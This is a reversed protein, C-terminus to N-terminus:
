QVETDCLKADRVDHVNYDGGKKKQNDVIVRVRNFIKQRVDCHRYKDNNDRMATCGNNCFPQWVCVLCDKHLARAEVRFKRAKDGNMIESMSAERLDGIVDKPESCLRDCPYVLGNYDVCSFNGCCGSFHCCSPKRDLAAAVFQDLEDIILSRDNAILWFDILKDYVQWLDNNSLAISADSSVSEQCSKEDVFNVNWSRLGLEHYFFEQSEQMSPISKATTTQILGFKLDVEKMLGINKMIRDFTPRCQADKRHQDHIQRTGDLSIGIGFGNEKFFAIWERDLLIANTQLRNDFQVNTYRNQEEVVLRYFELGALLPEGGHWIVTVKSNGIESLDKILKKLLDFSMRKLHGQDLHAYFCYLCRLNCFNGIPKIITIM